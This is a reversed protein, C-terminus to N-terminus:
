GGVVRLARPLYAILDTAILPVEGLDDRALDGALGHVHAGLQAAAFPELHQGLLAAILGTLVDGSGGTAMGPNGTTNVYVRRGDTVVTGHGKLLLVVGHEAAFSVAVERREAPDASVKRGLLRAFEGPHPTLVPPVARGRLAETQGALVNLADADLVLPGSFHALLARVAAGVPPEHGLGPGAAVVDSATALRVLEGEALPSLRGQGDDPLPATMYCPNGAAVIPLIDAPVALRVLGAGGRLASTGCLVAAGSMGRSGVALLVRGFDGKHSDTARPPLAPLASVATAPPPPM